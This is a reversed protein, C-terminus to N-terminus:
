SANKMAPATKLMCLSVKTMTDEVTSFAVTRSSSSSPRRSTPTGRHTARTLWSSSGKLTNSRSTIWRWSSSCFPSTPLLALDTSTHVRTRREEMARCESWLAKPIKRVLWLLLEDAGYSGPTLRGMRCDIKGLLENVRSTTPRDPLGQLKAIEERISLDSEFKPFMTELSVLVEGFTSCRNFPQKVHDKLGDKKCCREILGLLIQVPANVQWTLSLFSSFEEVWKDLNKGAFEPLEVQVKATAIAKNSQKGKSNKKCKTKPGSSSSSDYSSDGDEDGKLAALAHLSTLPLSKLTKPDEAKVEYQAVSTFAQPVFPSRGAYTTPTPMLGGVAHAGLTHTYGALLGHAFARANSRFLPNARTLSLPSATDVKPTPLTNPPRKLLGVAM